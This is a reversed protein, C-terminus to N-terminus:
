LSKGNTSSLCTRDYVYLHVELATIPLLPTLSSVWIKTPKKGQPLPSTSHHFVKITNTHVVRAGPEQVVHLCENHRVRSTHANHVTRRKGDHTCLLPIRQQQYLFWFCLFLWFLVSVRSCLCVGSLVFAHLIFNACSAVEGSKKADYATRM